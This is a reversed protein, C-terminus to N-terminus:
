VAVLGLREDSENSQYVLITANKKLREQVDEKNWCEVNDGTTNIANVPDYVWQESNLTPGVLGTQPPNGNNMVVATSGTVLAVNGLGETAMGSTGVVDTYPTTKVCVASRLHFETGGSWAGSSTDKSAGTGVHITSLVDVPKENTRELGAVSKPLNNLNFHRMGVNM